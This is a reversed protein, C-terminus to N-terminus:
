TLYVAKGVHKRNCMSLFSIVPSLHFPATKKFEIWPPKLQLETIALVVGFKKSSVRKKISFAINIVGFIFMSLELNLSDNIACENLLEGALQM